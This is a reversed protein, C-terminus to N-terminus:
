EERDKPVGVVFAKAIETIEADREPTCLYALSGKPFPEKVTPEVPTLTFSGDGNNTFAFVQGPKADPIRVRKAKDATITHVTPIEWVNRKNELRKQATKSRYTSMKNAPTATPKGKPPTQPISAPHMDRHCLQRLLQECGIRPVPADVVEVALVQWGLAGDAQDGRIQQLQKERPKEVVLLNM